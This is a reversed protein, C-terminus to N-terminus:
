QCFLGKKKWTVGNPITHEPNAALGTLCNVINM